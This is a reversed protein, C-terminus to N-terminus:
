SAAEAQAAVHGASATEPGNPVVWAMLAMVRADPPRNDPDQREEAKTLFLARIQDGIERAEDATLWLRSQYVATAERWTEPEAESNALAARLRQIERELAVDQLASAAAADEADEGWSLSEAVVKWPRRRGPGTTAQRVFGHEALKRLHWSVNAPTQDLQVAADSATMPGHVILLELVDWRVPHALAKMDATSTVRRRTITM